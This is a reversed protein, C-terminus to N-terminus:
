PNAQNAQNALNALNADLAPDFTTELGPTSLSLLMKSLILRFYYLFGFDKLIITHQIAYLNLKIDSNIQIM